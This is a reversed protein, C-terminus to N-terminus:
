VFNWIGEDKKEIPYNGTFCADCFSGGGVAKMMGAHSLYALSDAGIYERIGSVDLSSAILEERTPTDIGYYCSNTTPPSSSRMHVEAAGAQRLLQVIKKSTTGRVISDDVVVIRMGRVAEKVPNLKVRVSFHRINQEPEIFTRGIYHNRIFGMEFPIGSQEAYGISAPVGSDPVPIVYDADVYSERALQRGLEKRVLHGSYDFTRSDPRSFYILEFICKKQELKPIENLVRFISTNRFSIIEGPEVDRLFKAEILDLACTESAVVYGEGYEGICLPRFGRPDRVAILNDKSLILLSFAGELNAVARKVSEILPQEYLFHRILNLIVETDSDGVFPIGQAQLRRRLPEANTLNGNHSISINGQPTEVTLPQVNAEPKNGATSYRNHGIAFRSTKGFWFNLSNLMEHDFFDNVRGEGKMSRFFDGNVVIGTSEQGRHQLAYLGLYALTAAEPCNSIGIVGCM